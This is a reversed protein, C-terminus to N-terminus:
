RGSGERKALGGRRGADVRQEYARMAKVREEEQRPNVLEGNRGHIWFKEIEGWLRPFSRSNVGLLKADAALEDPDAPIGGENWAIALLDLYLGRAPLSLRRVARDSLWDDPYFKFYPLCGV